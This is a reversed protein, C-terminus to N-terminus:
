EAEVVELELSKIGLLKDIRSFQEFCINYKGPLKYYSKLSLSHSLACTSGSCDGEWDGNSKAMQLSVPHNIKTQDPFTTTVLVYVNEYGFDPTHIMHLLLDYPIANNVIEFEFCIKEGYAWPSSPVKKEKYILNPGCGALFMM